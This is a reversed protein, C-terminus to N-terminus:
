CGYDQQCSSFMNGSVFRALAAVTWPDYRIGRDQSIEDLSLEVVLSPEDPRHGSMAEVVAAVGLVITGPLM